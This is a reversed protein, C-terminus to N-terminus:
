GQALIEVEGSRFRAAAHEYENATLRDALTLAFSCGDWVLCEYEERPFDERTNTHELVVCWSEDDPAVFAHLEVSRHYNGGNNHRIHSGCDCPEQYLLISEQEM